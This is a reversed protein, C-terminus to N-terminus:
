NPPLVFKLTIEAQTEVSRGDVLHPKFRWQRVAAAAADSLLPNGSLVKIQQVIGDRGIHVSLVVPGQVHQSLAEAPYQPEVRALLERQMMDPSLKAIRADTSDAHAMENSASGGTADPSRMRFIEKGNEFVQLSGEKVSPDRRDPIAPTGAPKKDNASPQTTTTAPESATVRNEASAIPPISSVAARASSRHRGIDIWGVRASMAVIMVIAISFVIAATIGTFWDLGRSPVRGFTAASEVLTNWTKRSSNDTANEFGYSVDQEMTSDAATQRTPSVTNEARAQIPQATVAKSEAWNERAEINGVTQKALADLVDLDRDAFAFPLPSFIELIGLIERGRLVPSVLVSRVELQRALEADTRPDNWADDCREVHGSRACAGSLGVNTDLRTGLGPAGGRSARCVMEDGKWLAIASGTAGTALCAREAIGNLVIELALEKALEQSIKQEGQAVIRGLVRGFEPQGWGPEAPSELQLQSSAEAQSPIIPTVETASTASRGQLPPLKETNGKSTPSQAM